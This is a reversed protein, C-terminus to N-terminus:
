NGASAHEATLPISAVYQRGRLQHVPVNYGGDPTWIQSLACGDDGCRFILRPQIERAGVDPVANVFALVARHTDKNYFEAVKASGTTNLHIVYSGIASGGGPIRFAFPVDAKLTTQGYAATGCVVAATALLVFRNTISKM